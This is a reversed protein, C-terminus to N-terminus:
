SPLDSTNVATVANVLQDLDYTGVLGVVVDGDDLEGDGNGAFAYTNGEAHFVVNNDDGAAVAILAAEISTYETDDAVFAVAVYADSVVADIYPNTTEDFAATPDTLVQAIEIELGNLVLSDSASADIDDDDDETDLDAELAFGEIMDMYDSSSTTIVTDQAGGLKVTQSIQNSTTVTSKAMNVFVDADGTADLDAFATMGSLNIVTLNENAADAVDEGDYSADITATGSGMVTIVKLGQMADAVPAPDGNGDTALPDATIVVNALYETGAVKSTGRASSLIVTATEMDGTLIATNPAGATGTNIGAVVLQVNSAKVDYTNAAGLAAVFTANTISVDGGYEATFEDDEMDEDAKYGATEISVFSSGFTLKGTPNTDPNYLSWEGLYDEEGRTYATNTFSTGSAVEEFYNLGATVTYSAVSAFESADVPKAASGIAGVALIAEFSTAYETLKLYDGTSFVEDGPIALTDIGDGGDVSAKSTLEATGGELWVVDNGAGATIDVDGTSSHDVKIVDDGAGTDVTTIGAGSVSVIVQDAGDGSELTATVTEDKTTSALDKKTATNLTLEDAGEGTTITEVTNSVGEITLGGEGNATVTELDTLSTLDLTLSGSTSSTIATLENTAATGPTLDLAVEGGTGIFNVSTTKSSKVELEGESGSIAFTPSVAATTVTNKMAAIGSFGIIQTAGASVATDGSAGKLWVQEAGAFGSAKVEPTNGAALDEALELANAAVIAEAKAESVSAKLTQLDSDAELLLDFIQFSLSQASDSLDTFTLDNVADKIDSFTVTAPTFVRAVETQVFDEVNPDNDIDVTTTYYTEYDPSLGQDLIPLLNNITNLLAASDDGVTGTKGEIPTYAQLLESAALLNAYSYSGVGEALDVAIANAAIIEPKATSLAAYKEAVDAATAPTMTPLRSLTTIGKTAFDTSAAIETIAAAVGALDDGFEGELLMMIAADASNEVVQARDNLDGLVTPVENETLSLLSLVKNFQTQSFGNGAYPSDAFDTKTLEELDEFTTGSELDTMSLATAARAMSVLDAGTSASKVVDLMTEGISTEDVTLRLADQLISLSTVYKLGSEQVSLISDYAGKSANYAATAAALDGQGAGM